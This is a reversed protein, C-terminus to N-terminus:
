KKHHPWEDFLQCLDGHGFQENAFSFTGKSMMEEGAKRVFELTARAISGGV